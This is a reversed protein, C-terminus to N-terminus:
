VVKGCCHKYKKNSGCFCPDNRGIKAHKRKIQQPKQVNQKKPPANFEENPQPPHLVDQSQPHQYGLDTVKDEEEEYEPMKGLDLKMLQVIFEYRVTDLMAEFMAFAERKYEQKPNKQAFGRLGIGQRLYDINVLHEKWNRDLTHLMCTQEIMRLTQVDVQKQKVEYAGDFLQKVKEQLGSKTVDVDQEFWEQVPATIGFDQALVQKLKEPKWEDAPTQPSCNEIMSEIVEPVITEISESIDKSNMLEFRQEYVIKRQENIVDDYDLLNKRVDYNYAEVKRQANEISKNVWQHEIAEDEEMGLKDILARVKDGAFIRMLSDELSLYFRSSGPDGQRGARGRLQNDIRRSEHRETGIIRLGGASIVQQHHQQWEAECREREPLDKEELEKKNVAGGLVIDTGRGAMNTAITVANLCGADAIIQSEEAHHKANLVQHKIGEQNLLNSLHESVQISATGALVPQSKTVCDKIDNIIAQFKEKQTLYVLDSQDDRIMKKHTPLIIVELKYIDNLEYAETDATGTMGSLKDYLRFYNQFTISAFTQNEPEVKLGEKAEIAQHLGDGWRRGQMVRGTFEDVILAKGNRILYDVNKKYLSQARLASTVHHFLSVNTVDYLSGQSDLLGKKILLEEIRQHGSETILVQRSKEDVSYDGGDDEEQEASLPKVLNNIVNYIETGGEAPGSIILPTRAEDILVSDVEDIIAYSHHKQMVQDISFSMNDRLYDFGFENNTGYVIDSQYSEKREQPAQGSVITGVKMGLFRYIQGMWEADRNALYDNVTVVHVSKGSLANLYAPLTAVLTKGEGTSMEAICGQHLTVGGMLQVDFHRMNLVRKAVERVVAFAEPLIQDLSEGNDVRQKFESHKAKLVDDSLAQVSEELSGIKNIIPTYTKLVRANRSSFLKDLLGKM